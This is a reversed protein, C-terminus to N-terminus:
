KVERRHMLMASEKKCHNNKNAIVSPNYLVDFKITILM